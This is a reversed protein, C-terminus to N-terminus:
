KKEKQRSRLLGATVAQSNDKLLGGARSPVSAVGQIAPAVGRLARASAAPGYKKAGKTVLAAGLGYAAATAPDTGDSRSSGAGVAGGAMLDSLGFFRNGSRDMGGKALGRIESSLAYNKNAERLEKAAAGNLTEIRGRVAKNLSDRMSLAAVEEPSPTKAGSVKRFAKQTASFDDLEVRLKHLDELTHLPKKAVEDLFDQMKAVGQKAGVNINAKEFASQMGEQVDKMVDESRFLTKGSMNSTKIIEGIKKGSEGRVKEANSLIDDFSAGVPAVGSKQIFESLEKKHNPTFKKFDKQIAGVSKLAFDSSLKDAGKGVNSITKGVRSIAAGAIPVAAGFKAGTKAQDLREEAQIPDLVGEADGPNMVAAQTAGGLAGSAVSKVLGPAKSATAALRAPAAAQLGKGLLGVAGGYAPASAVAGTVQGGAFYGPSEEQLGEARRLLWDRRSLYTSSDEPDEVSFGQSRLGQNVREPDNPNVAGILGRAMRVSALVRSLNPIAAGVHSPGAFPIAGRGFGEIAAEAKRSAPADPEPIDAWDSDSSPDDPLDVWEDKPQSLRPNAM